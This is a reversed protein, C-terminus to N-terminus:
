IKSPVLFDGTPLLVFLSPVLVNLILGWDDGVYKFIFSHSEGSNFLIHCSLVFIFMM